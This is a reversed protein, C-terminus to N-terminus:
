VEEYPEVLLGEMGPLIELLENDGFNLLVSDNRYTNEGDDVLGVMQLIRDKVPAWLPNDTMDESNYDIQGNFEHLLMLRTKESDFDREIYIGPEADESAALIIKTGDGFGLELKDLFEFMEDKRSKNQWNHYVVRVLKKHELSKLSTLDEHSFYSKM